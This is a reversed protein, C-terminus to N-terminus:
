SPPMITDIPLIKPAVSGVVHAPAAPESKSEEIETPTINIIDPVEEMPIIAEEEAAIEENPENQVDPVEEFPIIEEEVVDAGSLPENNEVTGESPM